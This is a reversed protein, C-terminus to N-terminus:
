LTCIDAEATDDLLRTARSAYQISAKVQYLHKRRAATVINAVYTSFYASTAGVKAGSLHKTCTSARASSGAVQKRVGCGQVNETPV